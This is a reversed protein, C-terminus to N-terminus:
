SAEFARWDLNQGHNKAEQLDARSNHQKLKGLRGLIYRVCGDKRSVQVLDTGNGFLFFRLVLGPCVGNASTGGNETAEALTAMFALGLLNLAEFLFVHVGNALM